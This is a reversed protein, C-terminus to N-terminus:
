RSAGADVAAVKKYDDNLSKIIADTIDIRNDHFIVHRNVHSLVEQPAATAGPADPRFRLVLTFGHAKAYAAITERTTKYTDRYIDSERSIFRKKSDNRLDEFERATERLKKETAAYEDTGKPLKALDTKLNQGQTAIAKVKDEAKKVDAALDERLAAFQTLSKFILAVDVVATKQVAPQQNTAKDDAKLSVALIGAVIAVVAYQKM